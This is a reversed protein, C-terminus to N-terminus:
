FVSGSGKGKSEEGRDEGGILKAYTMMPFPDSMPM